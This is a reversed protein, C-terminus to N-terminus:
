FSLRAGFQIQRPANVQRLYIRAFDAAAINTGPGAFQAYNFANFIEARLDVASRGPLDVRREILLDVNSTGPNRVGPIARPATGFSFPPTRTFAAPNFFLAGDTLEGRSDLIPSVGSVANPRMNTGGGFSNSDNPSSLRVPTGNDWTFFSAVAWGAVVHALPGRSLRQRGQGFPLDYRVSWRIVDPVDQLSLSWDCDFCHNNQFGSADGVWLGVEGVNDMTTSKTYAFVTGLGNSFRRELTLQMAHYRSRGVGALAAIVNQFQPYPRLLQGAQVTPRSLISTTDTIVGYFPNPVQQLLQSGLSLASDPLQNLNIPSLLNRGVNGAYGITVVFNGPLERQVDASWNVQYSVRQQEPAGTINQGLLTALGQSNGIPELLGTPFPNSLNFLPTVTDAETVVASTLRSSGVSTNTGLYSPAPHHFVGFGGHIVTRDNWQWAAGLRPDFDNKDAKQTAADPEVFGVGGKLTLQPVQPAIPSPSELDLHVLHGARERWPQEFNYRLGYTLTLKSTARFQDQVYAGYYRHNIYDPESIGNSISAAGLLLDAVGSGSAALAAQPNPGGTFNNTARITLQTASSLRIPYSRLDVGAKLMHRGRLSSVTGLYQFVKSANRELAVQTGLQGVRNATIMPFTTVPNGAAVSSPFGLQTLDFGLTANTRNSQSQAFSLHHELVTSSGAVWTHRAMAHVGPIRNDAILPMGSGYVDPNRIRNQFFNFRATLRHDNTISHDFRTDIRDTNLGSPANSYYNNNNSFGDGQQNPLPYLSLLRMGVPSLLETPIRNGPFPDRIYRTTGAPRSPDLRTTRPDYIVIPNGQADRTQSFDGSRELATPVTGTYSGAKTERLGEFALFFFSRDRGRYVNPITLPGGLTFGYQNRTFDQKRQGARNANFGNADFRDDRTFEHLTGHWQNTGSRLGFLALGGSTRGYEPAYGATVVRFEQVADVQPVSAAQNAYATINAAGDLQIDTTSAKAGNIRFMNTRSQSVNNNGADASAPTVGVANNIMQLPNRINLPISTVFTNEVVVGREARDVALPTTAASVLVTEQLRSPQLTVTLSRSQGVELRLGAVTVPAFGELTVTLEYAGPPASAFTFLGVTNSISETTVGTNSNKLVVTAGPVAANSEDIVHGSLTTDQAWLASAGLVLWAALTAPLYRPILM